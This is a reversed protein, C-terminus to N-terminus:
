NVKYLPGALFPSSLPSPTNQMEAGGAALLLGRARSMPLHMTQVEREATHQWVARGPLEDTSPLSAARSNDLCVQSQVVTQLKFVVKGQINAKLQNPLIEATPYQTAVVIHIGLSRALCILDVLLKHAYTRLDRDAKDKSLVPSLQSLEDVMLVTYPLEGARNKNRQRWEKVSVCGERRLFGKRRHMEGHLLELTDIAGELTSEVKVRQELYAFEVEKLDIIYLHTDPRNLLMQAVLQHLFNSKGAGTTGAVLLHPGGSSVLDATILGERGWGVVFPLEGKMKELEPLEFDMKQPIQGPLIDVRLLGRRFAFNVEADLAAEFRDRKEEFQKVALGIPIKYWLRLGWSFREKRRLRPLRIGSEREIFLGTNECTVKFRRWPLSSIYNHAAYIGATVLAAQGGFQLLPIPNIAHVVNFCGIFQALKIGIFAMSGSGLISWALSKNKPAKAM